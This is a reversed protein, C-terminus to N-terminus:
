GLGSFIFSLRGAHSYDCSTGVWGKGILSDHSNGQVGSGDWDELLHEGGQATHQVFGFGV